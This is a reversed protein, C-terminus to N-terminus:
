AASKWNTTLVLGTTTRDDLCITNNDNFENGDPKEERPENMTEQVFSNDEKESKRKEIIYRIISFIILMVLITMVTGM